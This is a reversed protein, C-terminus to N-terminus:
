RGTQYVRKIYEVCYTSIRDVGQSLFVYGERAGLGGGRMGSTPRLHHALLIKKEEAPSAYTKIEAVAKGAGMGVWFRAAASGPHMTLIDGWIVLTNPGRAKSLDDTVEKFIGAAALKTRLQVRYTDRYEELKGPGIEPLGAISFDGIVVTDFIKLDVGPALFVYGTPDKTFTIQSKDVIGGEQAQGVQMSAFLFVLIWGGVRVMKQYGM